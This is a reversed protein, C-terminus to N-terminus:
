LLASEDMLNWFRLKESVSSALGLSRIMKYASHCEQELQQLVRM